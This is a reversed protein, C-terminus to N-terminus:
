HVAVLNLAHGHRRCTLVVVRTAVPVPSTPASSRSEIGMRACGSRMREDFVDPPLQERIQRTKQVVSADLDTEVQRMMARTDNLKWHLEHWQRQAATRRQEPEALEREGQEVQASLSVCESRLDDIAKVCNRVDAVQLSLRQAQEESAASESELPPSKQGRRRMAAM